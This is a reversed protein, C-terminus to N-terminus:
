LLQPQFSRLVVSSKGFERQPFHFQTPQNQEAVATSHSLALSHFAKNVPELSALFKLSFIQFYLLANKKTINPTWVTCNLKILIYMRPKLGHDIARAVICSKNSTDAADNQKLQTWGALEAEKEQWHLIKEAFDLYLLVM